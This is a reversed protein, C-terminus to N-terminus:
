LQGFPKISSVDFQIAPCNDPVALRYIVPADSGSVDESNLETIGHRAIEEPLPNAADDRPWIAFTPATCAAADLARDRYAATDDGAALGPTVDNDLDLYRSGSQEVPFFSGGIPGFVISGRPINSRIRTLLIQPDRGKWLKVGTHMRRIELSAPLLLELCVSAAILSRLTRSRLSEWGIWSFSAMVLFPLWFIAYGLFRSLLVASLALNALATVALAVRLTKREGGWGRRQAWACLFGSVLLFGTLLAVTKHTPLELNWQGGLLPSSDIQDGKSASRVFQVWSWPTMGLPALLLANTVLSSFAAVAGAGLFRSRRDADVCAASIVGCAVGTLPPLARPTSGAALGFLIGAACALLALRAASGSVAHLLFLIGAFILGVTVPDWRGPLLICYATSILVTSAGGLVVWHGAGSLRLLLASSVTILSIGFLFCLARWPLVSLGFLRIWAAAVRFSVPGFFRVLPIDHAFLGDVSLNAPRGHVISWATSQPYLEDGWVPERGEVLAFTTVFYLVLLCWGFIQLRILRRPRPANGCAPAVPDLVNPSRLEDM